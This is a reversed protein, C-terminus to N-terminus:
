HSAQTKGMSLKSLPLSLPSSSTRTSCLHSILQLGLADESYSMEVEEVKPSLHSKDMEM